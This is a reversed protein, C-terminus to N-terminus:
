FTDQEAASSPSRHSIWFAVALSLLLVLALFIARQIRLATFQRRLARHSRGRHRRRRRREPAGARGLTEDAPGAGM